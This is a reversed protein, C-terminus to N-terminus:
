KLIIRYVCRENGRHISSIVTASASAGTIYSFMMEAFGESCYCMSSLDSEPKNNIIPCVCDKKNEDAIITKTAEDYDIKWDWESELFGMFKKLDNRYPELMKYMGEKDYHVSSCKKLIRRKEDENLEKSINSLLVALWEHSLDENGDPLVSGSESNGTNSGALGVSSFGCLCAGTFCAKKFFEKRNIDKM